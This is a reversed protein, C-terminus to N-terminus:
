TNAASRLPASAPFEVFRALKGALAALSFPKALYDDMGAALCAERDGHMANATLAIIPTHTAATLRERRRWERTAAFGDLGPMQCDMLVVDFGRAEARVLADAGDVACEVELGLSTLMALALERNVANDEVLLVVPTGNDASRATAFDARTELEGARDIPSEASAGAAELEVTFTFRSGVGEETRIDIRGGMLDALERCIALGLGTGGFRRATSADVQSFPQFLLALRDAPIGIGTDAVTVAVQQVGRPRDEAEITVTVSGVQTFKVANGILNTLIQRLRHADGMHQALLNPAIEVRLELDRTQCALTFLDAVDHVLDAISFPQRELRLKGAELKSFELVDNLLALLSEASRYATELRTRQLPDLQSALVLQLMGMVGNMPTRIEHSMTALFRSKALNSAEAAVRADDLEAHIQKLESMMMAANVLAEAQSEALARHRETADQAEERLEDLAGRAERAVSPDLSEVIQALRKLANSGRGKV